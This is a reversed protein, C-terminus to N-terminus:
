TPMVNSAETVKLKTTIFETHSVYILDAIRRIVHEEYYHLEGDAYAVQWLNQILAIKEEPTCLDNIQSTFRFYDTAEYQAKEAQKLLQEATSQDLSFSSKLLALLTQKEEPKREYDSLLVEVMLAASALSILAKPDSHTSSEPPLFTDLFSKLKTMM